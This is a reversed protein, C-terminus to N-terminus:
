TLDSLAPRTHTNTHTLTHTHPLGMDERSQHETASASTKNGFINISYLCLHEGGAKWEGEYEYLEWSRLAQQEIQM